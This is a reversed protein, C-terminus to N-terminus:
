RTLSIEKGTRPDLLIVRIIGSTALRQNDPSFTLSSLAGSYRNVLDGSETDYIELHYDASLERSFRIMALWKGDPSFALPCNFAPWSAQAFGTVPVGSPAGTLQLTRALGIVSVVSVLREASQSGATPKKPDVLLKQVAFDGTALFRVEYGGAGAALRTGDPSFAVSLVPGSFDKFVAAIRRSSLEWFTVNRHIDGAALLKGDPSIAVSMVGSKADTLVASLSGTNVDWLKIPAEPGASVLNTGAPSFALTTAGDSEKFRLIRQWTRADWILVGNDFGATAFVKGDPSFAVAAANKHLSWPDNGKLKKIPVLTSSDAIVIEQDRVAVIASGDPAWALARAYGGLFQGPHAPPAACGTVLAWLFLLTLFPLRTM